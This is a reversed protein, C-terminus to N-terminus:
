KIELIVKEKAKKKKNKSDFINVAKVQDDQKVKDVSKDLETESYGLDLVSGIEKDM